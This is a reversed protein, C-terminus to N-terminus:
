RYRELYQEVLTRSASEPLAKAGIREFRDWLERIEVPSEILRGGNQAGAYAVDREELSIVQFPGDFGQHAGAASPVFRVIVNPRDMIELLHALQAQMVSQGGVCCDLVKEDILVWFFPPKERDLLARQRSAREAMEAEVDEVSGAEVLARTYDETQFQRPITHGHYSRISKAQEEYKRLQRGWDPDHSMRAFWLLLRFLMGTDFKEDLKQMHDEQPRQRCAEMNCVSSRAVGMIRGFQDLTLGHKERWFRMYVALFHWLSIKPDLPERVPPM